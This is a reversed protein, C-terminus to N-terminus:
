SRFERARRVTYLKFIDRIKTREDNSHWQLLYQFTSPLSLLGSLHKVYM